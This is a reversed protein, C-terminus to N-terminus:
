VEKRKTINETSKVIQNESIVGRLSTLPYVHTNKGVITGPNLICGCGIEAGDALIAGIKRLGTEIETEAHIVVATKDSKLNSCIAGAGLHARNGLVSDGVYNYHPAQVHDLLACNKFESANGLVCHEGTIVNGRLYANPRVETGAGIVAPPLVTATKAVTVGEGVLVGECFFSFGEPPNKLLTQVYNKIEPLIQWPYEKKEFLPRLYENEVTFLSSNKVKENM